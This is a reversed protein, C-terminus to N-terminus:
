ERYETTSIRTAVSRTSQCRNLLKEDVWSVDSVIAQSKGGATERKTTTPPDLFLCVAACDDVYDNPSFKTWASDVLAKAAAGRCPTSAVIDVAEKNSLADWVQISSRLIQSIISGGWRICNM